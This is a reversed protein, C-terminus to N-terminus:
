PTDVFAKKLSQHITWRTVAGKPFTAFDGARLELKPGGDQAVTVHGSLIHATENMGFTYDFVSREATWLGAYYTPEARLWKVRAAPDGERITEAPLPYPEWGEHTDISIKTIPNQMIDEEDSYLRWTPTRSLDRGSRKAFSRQL